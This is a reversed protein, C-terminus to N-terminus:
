RPFAFQMGVREISSTVDSGELHWNIVEQLSTQRHRLDSVIKNFALRAPNRTTELELRQM